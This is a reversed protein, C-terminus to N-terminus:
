RTDAENVDVANSCRAFAWARNEAVAFRGGARRWMEDPAMDMWTAPRQHYYDWGSIPGVDPRWIYDGAIRFVGFRQGRSAVIVVDGVKAQAFFRPLSAAAHHVNKAFPYARRVVRPLEDSQMAVARLDGVDGWGLALCMSKKM